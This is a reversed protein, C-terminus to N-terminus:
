QEKVEGMITLVIPADQKNTSVSITKTFYGVRQTDYHVLIEGKQGPNIAEKPYSPTTCGCSAQVNTLILPTKSKNVFKFTCDGPAGKVITGYNFTTTDFVVESSQAMSITVSLLLGFFLMIKKMIKM